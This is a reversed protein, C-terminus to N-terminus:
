MVCEQADAVQEVAEMFSHVEEELARDRAKVSQIPFYLSLGTRSDQVQHFEQPKNRKSRWHGINKFMIFPTKNISSLM